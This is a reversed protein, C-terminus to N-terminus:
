IVMQTTGILSNFFVQPETSQFVLVSGESEPHMPTMM